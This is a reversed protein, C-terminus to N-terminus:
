GEFLTGLIGWFCPAGYIFSKFWLAAPVSPGVSGRVARVSGSLFRVVTELFTAAAFGMGTCFPGPGGSRRELLCAM